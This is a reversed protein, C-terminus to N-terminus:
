ADIWDLIFDFVTKDIKDSNIYKDVISRTYKDTISGQDLILELIQINQHTLALEFITDTDIVKYKDIMLAALEDNNSVIARKLLLIYDKEELIKIDENM